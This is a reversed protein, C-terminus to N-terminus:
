HSQWHMQDVERTYKDKVLHLSRNPETYNM